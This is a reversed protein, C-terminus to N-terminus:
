DNEAEGDFGSTTIRCCVNYCDSESLFSSVCSVLEKLVSIQSRSSVLIELEAIRDEMNSLRDLMETASKLLTLKIQLTSNLTAVVVPLKFKEIASQLNKIDKQVGLIYRHQRQVMVEVQHQLLQLKSLPLSALVASELQNIDAESIIDMSTDAMDEESARERATEVGCQQHSSEEDDFHDEINGNYVTEVGVNVRLDPQSEIIDKDLDKKETEEDVSSSFSTTHDISSYVMDTDSEKLDDTVAPCLSLNQRRALSTLKPNYGTLDFMTSKFHSLFNESQWVSLSYVQGIEEESLERTMSEIVLERLSDNVEMYEQSFAGPSIKITTSIYINAADWDLANGHMTIGIVASVNQLYSIFEVVEMPMLESLECALRDGVEDIDMHVEFREGFKDASKLYKLVRQKLTNFLRCLESGPLMIELKGAIEQCVTLSSSMEDAISQLLHQATHICLLECRLRFHYALYAVLTAVDGIENVPKYMMPDGRSVLAIGKGMEVFVRLMPLSAEYDRVVMSHPEIMGVDEYGLLNMVHMAVDTEIAVIAFHPEHKNICRRSYHGGTEVLQRVGYHVVQVFARFKLIGVIAKLLDLAEKLLCTCEESSSPQPLLSPRCSIGSSPRSVSGVLEDPKFHTFFNESQWTFTMHIKEIEAVSLERSLSDRMLTEISDMSPWYDESMCCRDLKSITKLYKQVADRPVMQGHSTNGVLAQMNQLYTVITFIRSSTRLRIEAQIKRTVAGYQVDLQIIDSKGYRVFDLASQRISDWQQRLDSGPQLIPLRAAATEMLEVSKRMDQELSPLIDRFTWVISLQIRVFM